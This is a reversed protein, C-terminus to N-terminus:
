EIDVEFVAASEFSIIPAYHIEITGVTDIGHYEVGQVKKGPALAGMSNDLPYSEMQNGDADYVAIDLGYSLDEDSLNELEYEIKIVATPDNDAFENREDTTSVSKLTFKADKFEATDGVTLVQNNEESENEVNEEANNENTVKSNSSNNSSTDTSGEDCAVLGLSLAMVFILLFLRKM